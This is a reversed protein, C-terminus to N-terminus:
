WRSGDPLLLLILHLIFLCALNNLLSSTYCFDHYKYTADAPARSASKDQKKEGANNSSGNKFEKSSGMYPQCSYTTPPAPASLVTNEGPGKWMRMTSKLKSVESYGLFPARLLHTKQDEDTPLTM